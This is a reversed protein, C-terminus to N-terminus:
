WNQQVGAQTTVRVQDEFVRDTINKQSRRRIRRGGPGQRHIVDPGNDEVRTRTTETAFYNGIPQLIGFLDLDLKLILLEMAALEEFTETYNGEQQIIKADM